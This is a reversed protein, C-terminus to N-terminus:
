TIFDDGNEGQVDTMMYEGHGVLAVKDEGNVNMVMREMKKVCVDLEDVGCTLSTLM